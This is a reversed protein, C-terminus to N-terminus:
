RAARRGTRSAPRRAPGAARGRAPCARSGRRARSRRRGCRCAPRPGYRDEVPLAHRATPTIGGTVRRAVVLEEPVRRRRGGRTGASRPTRCRAGGAPASTRRTGSPPTPCAPTSAAVARTCTSRTAGDSWARRRAACRRARRARRPCGSRRWGREADLGVVHVVAHRDVSLMSVDVVDHERLEARDRSASTLASDRSVAMTPMPWVSNEFCEPRLSSCSAASATAAAIASAPSVGASMSPTTVNVM